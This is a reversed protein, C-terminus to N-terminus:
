RPPSPAVPATDRPLAHPPAANRARAGQGAPHSDAGSISKWSVYRQEVNEVRLTEIEARLVANDRDM